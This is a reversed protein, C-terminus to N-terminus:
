SGDSLLWVTRKGESGEGSLADGACGEDLGARQTGLM